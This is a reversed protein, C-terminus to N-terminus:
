GKVVIPFRVVSLIVAITMRHKTSRVAYESSLTMRRTENFGTNSTLRYLYSGSVVPLNHSYRGNWVVTYRGPAQIGDVLRIVEQGFLNFVTLTMHSPTPVECAIKSSPNFPNPVADSLTFAATM